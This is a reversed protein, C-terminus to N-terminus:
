NIKKKEKKIIYDPATEQKVMGLKTSALQTIREPAQLVNVKYRLADNEDKLTEHLRKMDQNTKLLTDIYIVNGVYIVTAVASVVVFLFITWRNLKKASDLKDDLLKTNSLEKKTSETYIKM